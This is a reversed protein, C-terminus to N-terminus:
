RTVDVPENQFCRTPLSLLEQGLLLVGKVVIIFRLGFLSAHQHLAFESDDMKVGNLDNFMEKQGRM